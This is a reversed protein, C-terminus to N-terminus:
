RPVDDALMADRNRELVESWALSLVAHPFRLTVGGVLAPDTDYVPTGLDGLHKTLAASWRKRAAADLAVATTVTLAEDGGALDAALRDREADPLQELHADLRALAVEALATAAEPEAALSALLRTAMTVALEAVQKKVDSLASRREDDLQARTEALLADAQSRADALVKERDAAIETHARKFLDQRDAELVAQDHEYQQQESLAAQRAQEAKEFADEVERRRRAMVTQAPKYLFRQLLWVLVLFNIGQLAITWWSITM